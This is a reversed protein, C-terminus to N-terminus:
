GNLLGDMWKMGAAITVNIVSQNCGYQNSMLCQVGIIDGEKSHDPITYTFSFSDTELSSSRYVIGGM